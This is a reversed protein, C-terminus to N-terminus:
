FICWYIYMIYDPIAQQFHNSIFLYIQKLIVINLENNEQNTNKKMFEENLITFLAKM